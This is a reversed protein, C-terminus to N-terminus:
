EPCTPPSTSSSLTGVGVKGKMERIGKDDDDDYNNNDNLLAKTSPTEIVWEYVSACVNSQALEDIEGM